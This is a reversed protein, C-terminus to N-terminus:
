TTQQKFANVADIEPQTLRYLKYVLDDIENNLFRIQNSFETLVRKQETFFDLFETKRDLTLSTKSVSMVEDFTLEYFNNLKKPLNELGLEHQLLEKGKNLKEHFIKSRELLEEAKEAITAKESDSAKYIPFQELENVKFQPFIKRQFKDFTQVFWYSLLASNIVGLVYHPSYESDINMINHSNIDNIAIEETFIANICYPPSSPIQRVIIRPGNFQEIKRPAALNPGFKIYEGSWGLHYRAVDVGELYKLWEAGQPSESHYVRGDKMEKTQPPNGKGVEYAKLGSKVTAIEMLAACNKFRLVEKKANSITIVYDHDFYKEPQDESLIVAEAATLEGISITTPNSKKLFLLCTDVSAQNFVKDVANFISV